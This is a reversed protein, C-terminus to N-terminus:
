IRFDEQRVDRAVLLQETKGKRPTSGHLMDNEEAISVAGRGPKVHPRTPIAFTGCRIPALPYHTHAHELRPSNDERARAM